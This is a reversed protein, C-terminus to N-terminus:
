LASMWANYILLWFCWSEGFYKISGYNKRTFLALRAKM